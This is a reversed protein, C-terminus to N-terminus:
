RHGIQLRHRAAPIGQIMMVASEDLFLVLSLGKSHEGIEKSWDLMAFSRVCLMANAGDARGLSYPGINIQNSKM